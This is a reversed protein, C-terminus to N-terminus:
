GSTNILLELRAISNTAKENSTANSENEVNMRIGFCRCGVDFTRNRCRLPLDIDM